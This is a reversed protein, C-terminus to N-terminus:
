FELKELIKQWFNKEKEPIKEEKPQLIVAVEEGEKKLLFQERAVKELYDKDSVQSIGASLEQNRKELLQIEQTLRDIESILKKRKQSIRWNSILLFSIIVLIVGVLLISFLIRQFHNSKKVKRKKTIM